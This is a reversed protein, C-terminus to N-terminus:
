VIKKIDSLSILKKYLNSSRCRKGKEWIARPVNFDLEYNLNKIFKNIRMEELKQAERYNMEEQYEQFKRSLLLFYEKIKNIDKSNYNIQFENIKNEFKKFNELENIDCKGEKIKNKIDEKLKYLLVNKKYEIDEVSNINVGKFSSFRRQNELIEKDINNLNIENNKKAIEEYKQNVLYTLSNYNHEQIFNIM